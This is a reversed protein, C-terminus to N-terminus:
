EHRRLWSEATPPLSKLRRKATHGEDSKPQPKARGRGKHIVSKPARVPALKNHPASEARPVVAAAEIWGEIDAPLYLAKDMPKYFRPGRGQSAMKALTHESIPYHQPVQRRTLYVKGGFVTVHKAGAIEQGTNFPQDPLLPASSM